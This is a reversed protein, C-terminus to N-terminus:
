GPTEALKLVQGRHTERFKDRAEKDTYNKYRNSKVLEKFCEITVYELKDLNALKDKEDDTAENLDPGTINGHIIRSRIENLDEIAPHNLRPCTCCLYPM